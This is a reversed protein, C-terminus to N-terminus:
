YWIGQKKMEVEKPNSFVEEVGAQTGLSSENRKSGAHADFSLERERGALEFSEEVLVRCDAFDFM